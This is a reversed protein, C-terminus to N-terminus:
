RADGQVRMAHGDPDAVLFGERFGLTEDSLRVAGVGLREGLAPVDRTV